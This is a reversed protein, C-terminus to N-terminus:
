GGKYRADIVSNGLGGGGARTKRGTKLGETPVGHCRPHRTGFFPPRGPKWSKTSPDMSTIWNNTEELGLDRRFSIEWCWVCSM